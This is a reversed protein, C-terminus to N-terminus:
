ASVTPSTTSPHEAGGRRQPHADHLVSSGLPLTVTFTTGHGPISDASLRGGHAAVLRQSIFLGLGTGPTSAATEALRTFREFIIQRQEATLGPGHDSVAMSAEAESAEVRVVIEGGPAYKLANDLLNMLVQELRDRDWEGIVPVDPAECRVVRDGAVLAAQAVCEQAVTILDVPALRLELRGAELRTIELMDSILRGMREAEAVIKGAVPEDSTQRRQLLQAYGKIVTLPSSLDHAVMEVFEQKQRELARRQRIDRAIKAAGVVRGTHDLLPSISLSVDIRTGDKHVRVTEHHAIREGRKLRTMIDALEAHRDPPVITRIPRGIIEEATYGYLQEAAQNWSTITGDLTKSIIADDSSAVIASLEAERRRLLEQAQERARAEHPLAHAQQQLLALARRQEAVDRLAVPDGPLTLTDHAACIAAFPASDAERAFAELPYACLLSFQRGEALENWWHELAVAADHDGATALLAVLEGFVAVSPSAGLAAQAAKDVIGGVIATFRGQDLQGDDGRIQASLEGADLAVYREQAIVAPLDLGRAGLRTALETRHAATALVVAADGRGLAAGVFRTLRELFSDEDEYLHVEHQAPTLSQSKV